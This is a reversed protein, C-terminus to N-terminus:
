LELGFVLLKLGPVPSWDRVPQRVFGLRRYIRHAATMMEASSLVLHDFGLERSREVCFATLATGVGLGRAAPAVALMRFEGENPAAIERYPSGLPCFTVTGLPGDGRDAVWLEAKEARDAADRLTRAYEEGEGIYGDAHYAAATITGIVDYEDPRARRILQSVV